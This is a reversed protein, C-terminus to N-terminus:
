RLQRVPMVAWSRAVVIRAITSGALLGPSKTRGPCRDAQHGLLAAHEAPGAMGLGGDIQGPQRPQRRGAHEAFDEVGVAVAGGAVFEVAQGLLM